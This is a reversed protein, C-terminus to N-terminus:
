NTNGQRSKGDKREFGLLYQMKFPWGLTTLLASLSLARLWLAGASKAEFALSM